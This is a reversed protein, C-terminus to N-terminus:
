SFKCVLRLNSSRSNQQWYTTDLRKMGDVGFRLTITAFLKASSTHNQILELWPYVVLSGRPILSLVGEYIIEEESVIELNLSYDSACLERAEPTLFVHLNHEGGTRGLVAKSGYYGCTSISVDIADFANCKTQIQKSPVSVATTFLM